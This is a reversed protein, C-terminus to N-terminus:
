EPKSMPTILTRGYQATLLIALNGSERPAPVFISLDGLRQRAKSFKVCSERNRVYLRQGTAEALQRTHQSLADPTLALAGAVEKM